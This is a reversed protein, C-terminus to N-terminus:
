YWSLPLPKIEVLEVRSAGGQRYAFIVLNNFDVAASPVIMGEYGADRAL